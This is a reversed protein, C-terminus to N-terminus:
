WVVLLSYCYIMKKVRKWLSIYIFFIEVFFFKNKIFSLWYKRNFFEDVELKFVM